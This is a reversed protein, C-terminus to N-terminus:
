LKKFTNQPEFHKQDNRFNDYGEAAQEEGEEEDEEEENEEEEEQDEARM